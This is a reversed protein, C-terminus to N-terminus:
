CPDLMGIRRLQDSVARPLSALRNYMEDLYPSSSVGERTHLWNKANLIEAQDIADYNHLNALLVDLQQNALAKRNRHVGTLAMWRAYPGVCFDSHLQSNDATTARCGEDEAEVTKGIIRLADASYLAWAQALGPSDPGVAQAPNERIVEEVKAAKGLMAYSLLASQAAQLYCPLASGSDAQILALDSWEIGREYEGLRVFCLALNAAAQLYVKDNGIRLGTEYSQMLAPISSTYDGQISLIVGLGNQLMALVSNENKKSELLTMAERICKLSSKFDKINFFLMSQALLLHSVDDSDLSEHSLSSVTDLFSHTLTRSRATNLVSAAEVAAKIRSRRDASSDIFSLLAEPLEALESMDIYGLRRRAKTRLVFALDTSPSRRTSDIGELLQLSEEWRGQEQLAESLLVLAESKAPETLMPLATSLGREAGYPVGSHIAERAGRLLHITAEETRGARICHWAIELGLDEGGRDHERMLRDAIKGHLVRRV